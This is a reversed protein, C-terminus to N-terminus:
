AQEAKTGNLRRGHFLYQNAYGAYPGFYDQAWELLKKNSPSKESREHSEYLERHIWVDIPFAELKDLSFLSVCAAVKPGIGRLRMLSEKAEAYPTQKMRLAELDLEGELVAVAARFVNPARFGLKLDRLKMEGAAALQEPTPFTFRKVGNLSVPEGFEDSMREMLRHISEINNNASCIYAVLCEWPEMCLVRLGPYEKVRKQVELDRGTIDVLIDDISDDLRFYDWLRSVMVEESSPSCEFEVGTETRRIRVINGYIVGSFWRGDGGGDEWKWRHAQGGLLSAELDLPYGIDLRM